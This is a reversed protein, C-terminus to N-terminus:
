GNAQAAAAREIMAIVASGRIFKKEGVNLTDISHQEKLRRLTAAGIGTFASVGAPWRYIAEPFIV